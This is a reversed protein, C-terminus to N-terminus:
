ITVLGWFKLFIYYKKHPAFSITLWQIDGNSDDMNEKKVVGDPPQKSLAVLKKKHSWHHNAGITCGNRKECSWQPNAGITCSIKKVVALPNAKTAWDIIYIWQLWGKQPPKNLMNLRLHKMHILLIRARSQIQTTTPDIEKILCMRAIPCHLHMIEARLGAVGSM